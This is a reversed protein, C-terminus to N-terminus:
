AKKVAQVVANQMSINMMYNWMVSRAYNAEATDETKTQVPRYYIEKYYPNITVTRPKTVNVTNTVREQNM